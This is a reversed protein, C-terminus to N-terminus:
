LLGSAVCESLFALVIVRMTCSEDFQLETEQCGQLFYMLLSIEEGGGGGCGCGCGSGSGSGAGGVRRAKKQSGSVGRTLEGTKHLSPPRASSPLTKILM